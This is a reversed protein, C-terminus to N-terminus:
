QPHDSGTWTHKFENKCKNSCFRATHKKSPVVEFEEGCWECKKTVREGANPHANDEGTRSAAMCHLSCYRSSNKLAPKVQYEEGCHECTLTPYEVDQPLNPEYGNERLAHNWGDWERLYARVSYKGLENMDEKRPAHGLEGALRELEAALEERTLKAPKNVDYGGARLAENWGGFERDYPGRSFAGHKNMDERTPVRGLEDALEHLAAILEERTVNVRKNKEFDVAELASNWNGFERYFPGRSYESREELDTLKPTRGLEERLRQLEQILDERPVKKSM